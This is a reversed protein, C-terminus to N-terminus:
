GGKIIKGHMAYDTFYYYGILVSRTTAILFLAVGHDIVQTIVCSIHKLLFQQKLIITNHWTLQTSVHVLQNILSIITKYWKSHLSFTQLECLNLIM